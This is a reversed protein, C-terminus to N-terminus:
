HTTHIGIDMRNQQQWAITSRMTCVACQFLSAWPNVHRARGTETTKTFRHRSVVSRSFVFSFCLNMHNIIIITLNRFGRLFFPDNETGFRRRVPEFNYLWIYIRRAMGDGYMSTSLIYDAENAPVYCTRIHYLAYMCNVSVCAWSMMAHMFFVDSCSGYCLHALWDPSPM